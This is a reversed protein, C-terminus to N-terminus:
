FYTCMRDDGAFSAPAHFPSHSISIGAMRTTAAAAGIDAPAERRRRDQDAIVGGAGAGGGQLGVGRGEARRQDVIEIQEAAVDAAVEDPGAAVLADHQGLDGATCAPRGSECKSLALPVRFLM